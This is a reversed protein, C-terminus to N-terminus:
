ITFKKQTHLKQPRQTNRTYDCSKNHDVLVTLPTIKYNGARQNTVARQYFINTEICLPQQNSTILWYDCTQNPCNKPYIMRSM